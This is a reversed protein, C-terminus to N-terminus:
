FDYGVIYDAYGSWYEASKYASVSETPVYIIRGSANSDFAIWDGYSTTATPPTKPKCYVNVLSSCRYFACRNIATVGDPIVVSQLYDCFAFSDGISTVEEPITYETIGAPAFSNLAGDVILCRNDDSAFKGYFASLSVCGVFVQDGISTVSEPITISKLAECQFFTQAKISTISDPITVDALSFCWVFACRGISAVSNPITVSTLSICNEFANDGISTVSNPLTISTLTMSNVYAKAGIQTVEDDFTIVGKGNRYTNSVINAGFADTTSPAVSKGTSSTYWIENNKISTNYEQIVSINVSYDNATIVVCGDRVAGTDNVDVSVTLMCSSGASGSAPSIHLWSEDTTVEWDYLATFHINHTVVGDSPFTLSVEEEDCELRIPLEDPNLRELLECSTSVLGIVCLLLLVFKKM